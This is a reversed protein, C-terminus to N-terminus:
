WGKLVRGSHGALSEGPLCGKLLRVRFRPSRLICRMIATSHTM